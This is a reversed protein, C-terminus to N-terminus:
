GGGGADAVTGADLTFKACRGGPVGPDSFVVSDVCSPYKCDGSQCQASFTCSGGSPLTSQCTAGGDGAACYLTPTGLGLYSCDTSQQKDSCPQGSGGLAQCTGTGADAAIKCYGVQCQLSNICPGADNPITGKMAAYCDNRVRILSSASITGCNLSLWEQLCRSAASPDYTITGSDLAASYAGIRYAGGNSDFDTVCGGPGNQNWQDSPVLCCEQVRTCYAVNVTHPFDVLAPVDIGVDGIDAFDNGDSSPGSDLPPPADISADSNGAESDQAADGSEVADVASTADGADADEGSPSDSQTGDFTSTDAGNTQDQGGAEPTAAVTDDSNCGSSVAGVLGAVATAGLLAFLPAAVRSSTKM